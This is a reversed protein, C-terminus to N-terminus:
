WLEEQGDDVVPAETDIPRTGEPCTWGTDSDMWGHTEMAEMRYLACDDHWKCGRGACPVATTTSM